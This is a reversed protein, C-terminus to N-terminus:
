LGAQPTDIEAQSMMERVSNLEDQIISHGLGKYFRTTLDGGLAQLAQATEKVRQQPIHPDIDSCGLFVPTGKLNGQYQSTDIHAL